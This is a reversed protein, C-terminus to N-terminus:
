GLYNFLTPPIMKAGAELSAQYATQISTFQTMAQAMNVDQVQGLFGTVSNQFATLGNQTTQLRQMRAGTQSTFASIQAVDGSLNALDTNSIDSLWTSATTGTPPTVANQLDQSFALLDHFVGSGSVTVPNTTSIAGSGFVQSGPLNVTLMAAPGVDRQITGTDGNYAVGTIMGNAAKTATFPAQTIQYGAFVYANGNNANAVQVLQNILSNVQQSIATLDTSNVTGGTAQVALQYASQLVSSASQLASQTTDLWTNGDTANAQFSKLRALISQYNLVQQAGLPHQSPTSIRQGTSLQQLYQSMQTQLNNLGYLFNESLTQNTIRM